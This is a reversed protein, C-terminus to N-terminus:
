EDPRISLEDITVATDGELIEATGTVPIYGEASAVVYYTVTSGYKPLDIEYEFKEDDSNYSIENVKTLEVYGAGDPHNCELNTFITIVLTFDAPIEGDVSVAGSVNVVGLDPVSLEFNLPLEPFESDPDYDRYAACAPSYGATYAVINYIQNPSLLSLIYEGEDLNIYEGEDLNNETDGGYTTTSRVVTASLGDSIQASVSAGGVPDSDDPVMGDIEVKDEPEIVKITPKLIYKGSNGAKVVSRGADFDLVLEKTEGDFVEFQHVLKIGTQFGSPIKLQRITNSGDNLILYNAFPHSEGLLNNELEPTDGIILRIQHYIDESFDNSGIAETVGNVLKLLNYTRNPLPEDNETELPNWNCDDPSDETDNKCIQVDAITVYVALYEDTTSDTLSVSVTGTGVDGDSSGGGGGDCAFFSIAAFFMVYIALSKFLKM